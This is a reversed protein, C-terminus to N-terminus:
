LSSIVRSSEKERKPRNLQYIEREKEILENEIKYKKIALEQVEGKLYENSRIL